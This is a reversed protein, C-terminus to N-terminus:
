ALLSAASIVQGRHSITARSSKVVIYYQQRTMTLIVNGLRRQGHYSTTTSDQHRVASSGSLDHAM